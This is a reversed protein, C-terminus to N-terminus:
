IMQKKRKDLYTQLLILSESDIGKENRYRPNEMNRRVEDAVEQGIGFMSFCSTLSIGSFEDIVRYEEEEKLKKEIDNM